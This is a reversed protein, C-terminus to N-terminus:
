PHTLSAASKLPHTWFTESRLFSRGRKRVPGDEEIKELALLLKAVEHSSLVAERIASGNVEVEATIDTENLM